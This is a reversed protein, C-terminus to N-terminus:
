GSEAALNILASFYEAYSRWIDVHFVEPAKRWLIIEAKAFITRTVMSVPFAALDLDLPCAASLWTAAQPGAITFALQRHSVDVLSHPMSKLAAGLASEFHAQDALPGLLLQEDPGLWLASWAPGSVARCAIESPSAGIFKGAAQLVAADGRLVFYASPALLKAAGNSDALAAVRRTALSSM